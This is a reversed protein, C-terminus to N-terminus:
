TIIVKKFQDAHPLQAIQELVDAEDDSQTCLTLSFTEDLLRYMGPNLGGVSFNEDEKVFKIYNEEKLWETRNFTLEPEFVGPIHLEEKWKPKMKAINLLVKEGNRQGNVLEKRIFEAISENTEKQIARGILKPAIDTCQGKYGFFMPVNGNKDWLFLYKGEERAKEVETVLNTLSTTPWESTSASNEVM